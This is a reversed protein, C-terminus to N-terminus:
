DREHSESSAESDWKLLDQILNLIVSMRSNLIVYQLLLVTMGFENRFRVNYIRFWTWSSPCNPIVYQLLLVTMGFKIRFRMKPSGSDLEPHRVSSFEPHCIRCESRFRVKPSGSDLEPHCVSMCNLIVYQLLLVTMGFKIRFRM